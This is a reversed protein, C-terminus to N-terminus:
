VGERTVVNFFRKWPVLYLVRQMRDSVAEGPAEFPLKGHNRQFEVLEKLKYGVQLRLCRREGWRWVLYLCDYHRGAATTATARLLGASGLPSDSVEPNGTYVLARVDASVCAGLHDLVNGNRIYWRVRWYWTRAAEATPPHDRKTPDVWWLDGNIGWTWEDWLKLVGRPMREWKRPVFAFVALSCIILLLQLPLGLLKFCAVGAVRLYFM